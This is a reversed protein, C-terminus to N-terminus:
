KTFVCCITEGTSSYEKGAIDGYIEYASFGAPKVEKIIEDKNFFHDWIKYCHVSQATIIVNQWLQTKDEDDYQYVADLCIHPKASFFGERESYYWSQSEPRRMKHTFVDFIFKGGPKLAKYIKSLLAIRDDLSLVAYDCYILTVIDFKETFDMELYNQCHYEIDSKDLAAQVEAYRISRESFDIGTVNYGAINFREAYIGPGCGLDLLFKYLTPPAINTIWEVSKNVFEHKRTSADNDPDLHIDLMIESIYEDNWISDTGPTYLKPKLLYKSIENLV